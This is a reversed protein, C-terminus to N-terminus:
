ETVEMGDYDIETLEVDDYLERAKDVAEEFSNAEVFVTTNGKFYLIIEWM